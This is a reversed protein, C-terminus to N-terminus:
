ALSSWAFKSAHCDEADARTQVATEEVSFISDTLKLGESFYNKQGTVSDLDYPLLEVDGIGNENENGLPTM